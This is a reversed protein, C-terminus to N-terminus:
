AAPTDPADPADPYRRVTIRVRGQEVVLHGGGRDVVRAADRFLAIALGTATVRGDEDALAFAAGDLGAADAEQLRGRMVAGDPDLRVLVPDGVWARLVAVADEFSAV